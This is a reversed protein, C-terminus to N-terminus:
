SIPISILVIIFLLEHTELMMQVIMLRQFRFHEKLSLCDFMCYQLLFSSFFQMFYILIHM